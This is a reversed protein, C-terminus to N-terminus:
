SYLGIGIIGLVGLSHSRCVRGDNLGLVMLIVILFISPFTKKKKSFAGVINIWSMSEWWLLLVKDCSFFLHSADEEHSRCFPCSADNIEVGRRRLNNRTPLRDRILRWAFISDKSPIKLKWIAKFVEDQTVSSFVRNLLIYANGMSYKGSSDM